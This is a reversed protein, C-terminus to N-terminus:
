PLSKLKTYEQEPLLGFLFATLRIFERHWEQATDYSCPVQMAAGALTHSRKWFVLEIVKLRDTGDKRQRTAEVAKHVAEYEKQHIPPLERLAANATPNSVSNGRPMGTLPATTGTEHLADYQRKLDPYRRIMGKVYPWWDYRPNSM